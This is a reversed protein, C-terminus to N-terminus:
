AAGWGRLHKVAQRYELEIADKLLHALRGGITLGAIDAVGKRAGVSVVFGKDVFRFPALEAGDIAARLNRAVSSGEEIATQALPGLVKGTDPDAVLAADGAAYIEPHDLVRLYEDVKLRSNYGTPLGSNAVVAPAKVGGAWVFVGGKISEGSKLTFGADTAETIAANTLVEVGLQDLIDNAKRVLAESSGPLITDGAEVLVVHGSGDAVGYQHALAPLEEAFGGALEVGTAGGGGIVVTMLRQQEAADGTQAAHRVSATVADWVSRAGDASYPYLVREALGKINFDNPASGLAIVLYHYPLDGVVTEIERRAPHFAVIPTQHFVVRDSLKGSLAVQTAEGERAGTAVRPLETVLTHYDHQDVLTLDVERHRELWSGLRQAVHLGAYGAGAVIIRVSEKKEGM